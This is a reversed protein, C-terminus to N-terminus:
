LRDNNVLSTVSTSSCPIRKGRLVCRLIHMVNTYVMPQFIHSVSDSVVAIFSEQLYSINALIFIITIDVNM